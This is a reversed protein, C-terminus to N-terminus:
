LKRKTKLEELIAEVANSQLAPEEFLDQSALTLLARATYAEAESTEARATLRALTNAHAPAQSADLPHNLKRTARARRLQITLLEVQHRTEVLKKGLRLYLTRLTDVGASQDAQEQALAQAMREHALSRELATRALTDQGRAVALEAKRRWTSQHHEEETCKKQVKHQEALAIAVQTKVQVLQNEMDLLLQSALKEPDQSRALLDNLNARLLTSVRELLSM